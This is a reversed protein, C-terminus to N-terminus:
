CMPVVGRDASTARTEGAVAFCRELAPVGSQACKGGGPAPRQEVLEVERGAFLERLEPELVAFPPGNMLRQDYELTIVLGSATVPVLARVHQVYRSRLEPPLAVLAARDYFADIPGLLEPTTLFFDGAFLTIPGASYAHFPGRQSIAPVLAHVDFFERVAQEALEVGVVEHDHAALWAVDESRGCLPVLVRRGLRSRHRVLLQNPRGEHFAIRGDRWRAVWEESMVARAYRM